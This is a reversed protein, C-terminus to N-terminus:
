IEVTVRIGVSLHFLQQVRTVSGGMVTRQSGQSGGHGQSGDAAGTSFMDEISQSVRDKPFTTFLLLLLLPGPKLDRHHYESQREAELDTRPFRLGVKM